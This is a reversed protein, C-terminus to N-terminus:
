KDEEYWWFKVGMLIEAAELAHMLADLHQFKAAPNAAEINQRTGQVFSKAQQVYGLGQNLSKTVRKRRM